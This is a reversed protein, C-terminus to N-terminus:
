WDEDGHRWADRHHPLSWKMADNSAFVIVMDIDLNDLVNEDDKHTNLHQKLNTANPVIQIRHM